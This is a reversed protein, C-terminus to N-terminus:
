QLGTIVYRDNSSNTTTYKERGISLIYEIKVNVDDIKAPVM